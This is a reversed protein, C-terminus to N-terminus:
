KLTFNIENVEKQPDAKSRSDAVHCSHMFFRMRKINCTATNTGGNVGLMKANGRDMELGGRHMYSESWRSTKENLQGTKM